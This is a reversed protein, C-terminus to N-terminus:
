VRVETDKATRGSERNEPQLRRRQLCVGPFQLSIEGDSFHTAVAVVTFEPHGDRILTYRAGDELRQGRLTFKTVPDDLYYTAPGSEESAPGRGEFNGSAAM